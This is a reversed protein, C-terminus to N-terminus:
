VGTTLYVNGEIEFPHSGAGSAVRTTGIKSAEPCHGADAATGRVAPRELADGVVGASYAGPHGQHVTRPGPPLLEAHVRQVAGGAAHGHRRHVGPEVARPDACGQVEISRRRRRTRRARGGVVRRAHDGAREVADFRTTTVAPGCAAPNDLPARPGGNLRIECNASRCSRTKKLFKTTLQGTAPNAEIKLRVKINVGTDALAGTGGLELYLQYLNGDLADQMRARRRVRRRWLRARSIYTARSRTRGARRSRKRPVSLRPTRATAPRWSCNM